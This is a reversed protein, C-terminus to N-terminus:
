LFDKVMNQSIDWLQDQIKTEYSVMASSQPMKNVFYKGSVQELKPDTAVYLTNEAGEDVTNGMGPYNARLLKTDIIGPHLCNSTVPSNEYIRALKYTFLVNCLKSLGYAEGGEFKQEGQLNDFELATSHIMSSVNIIRGQGAAEILGRIKNTLLFPALHNIQFTKEYGDPTLQRQKLFVGANNIFIDLKKFDKNIRDAMQAVEKLSEFDSTYGTIESNGTQDKIEDLTKKVLDENRGHIAVMYGSTALKKATEKGIGDTSGTILISQKM